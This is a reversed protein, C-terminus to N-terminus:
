LVSFVSKIHQYYRVISNLQEFSNTSKIQFANKEIINVTCHAFNRMLIKKHLQEKKSYM